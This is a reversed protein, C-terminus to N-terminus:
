GKLLRYRVSRGEGVRMVRGEDIGIILKGGLENAFAVCTKVLASLKPLRLKLELTRSERESYIM